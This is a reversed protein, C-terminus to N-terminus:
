KKYVSYMFLKSVVMSTWISVVTGLGLVLAFGEISSTGFWFLIVASFLTTLQGDRIATWAHVFANKVAVENGHGGRKEEKMREFIIINADIAMGISIIFGAIGAATLTVPVSKFLFLMLIVYISLAISAIFGPLRYWLMMFLAVLLLGLIGATVGKSLAESGLTSGVTETSVLSIPMPLAGYNLDRVVSKAEDVTFDGTIVAEGGSVEERIYPAQILNGDLFIGLVKGVNDRTIKAFLDEGENNFNLGIVPAGSVNNQDFRIDAKELQRGSLNTPLFEGSKEDLLMFELLPTEGIRRVAEEVDTVGPLEVILRQDNENGLAGGQEVQVLPEAVGFLNVRREITNKLSQMADPVSSSEIQSIDAQYILHTGGSLDLGLNFGAAKEGAKYDSWMSFGAWAAAVLIIISWFRYKNM